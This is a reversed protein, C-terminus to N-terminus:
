RWAYRPSTGEGPGLKGHRGIIGYPHGEVCCTCRVVVVEVQINIKVGRYERSHGRTIIQERTLEQKCQALAHFRYFTQPGCLPPSYSPETPSV